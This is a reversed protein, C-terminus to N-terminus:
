ARNRAALASRNAPPDGLWRQAETRNDAADRADRELVRERFDDASM